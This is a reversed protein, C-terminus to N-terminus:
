NAVIKRLDLMLNLTESPSLKEKNKAWDALDDIAPTTSQGGQTVIDFVEMIEATDFVSRSKVVSLNLMNDIAATRDATLTNSTM